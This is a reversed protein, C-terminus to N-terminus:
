AGDEAQVRGSHLEYIGPFGQRLLQQKWPRLRPQDRYRLRPNGGADPLGDPPSLEPYVAHADHAPMGPFHPLMGARKPVSRIGAPLHGAKGFLASSCLDDPRQNKDNNKRLKPPQALLPVAQQFIRIWIESLVARLHIEFGFEKESIDFANRIMKLIEQHVPNGPYLAIMEAQPVTILPLVYKEEIRSGRGGAILSADFIHM